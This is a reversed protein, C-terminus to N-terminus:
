YKAVLLSNTLAKIHNERDTKAINKSTNYSGLAESADDSITTNKTKKGAREASKAAKEANAAAEKGAETVKFMEASTSSIESSVFNLLRSYGDNFEKLGAVRTSVIKQEMELTNKLLLEQQKLAKELGIVAKNLESSLQSFGEASLNDLGGAM